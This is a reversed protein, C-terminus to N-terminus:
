HSKSAMSSSKGHDCWNIMGMFFVVITALIDSDKYATYSKLETIVRRERGDPM